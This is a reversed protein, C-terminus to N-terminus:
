LPRSVAQRKKQEESAKEGVWGVPRWCISEVDKVDYWKGTQLVMEVDVLEYEVTTTAEIASLEKKLKQQELYLMGVDALSAENDEQIKELAKASREVAEKVQARQKVFPAKIDASADTANM